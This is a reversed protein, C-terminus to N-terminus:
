RLCGAMPRGKLTTAGRTVKNLSTTYGCCCRCAYRGPYQVTTCDSCYWRAYVGQRAHSM